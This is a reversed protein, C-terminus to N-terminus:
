SRRCTGTPPTTLNRRYHYTLGNVTTKGNSATVTSSTPGAGGPHLEARTTISTATWSVVWNNNSPLPVGDLSLQRPHLWIRPGHDHLSRGTGYPRDIAYLEPTTPAAAPDNVPCAVPPFTTTGPLQITM